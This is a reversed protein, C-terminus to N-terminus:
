FLLKLVGTFPFVFEIPLRFIVFKYDNLNFQEVTNENWWAVALRFVYVENQYFFFVNSFRVAFDFIVTCSTFDFCDAEAGLVFFIRCYFFIIFKMYVLFPHLQFALLSFCNWQTKYLIWCKLLTNIQGKWTKKKVFEKEVISKFWIFLTAVYFMVSGFRDWM